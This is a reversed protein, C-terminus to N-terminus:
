FCPFNEFMVETFSVKFESFSSSLNVFQAEAVGVGDHVLHHRTELDVLIFACGCGCLVGGFENDGIM